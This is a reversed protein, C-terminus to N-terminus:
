RVVGSVDYKEILSEVKDKDEDIVMINHAKGSLSKLIDKRDNWSWYYCNEDKEGM